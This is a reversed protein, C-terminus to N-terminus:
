RSRVPCGHRSSAGSSCIFAVAQDRAAPTRMLQPLVGRYDGLRASPEYHVPLSGMRLSLIRRRAGIAFERSVLRASLRQALRPLSWWLPTGGKRSASFVRSTLFSPMSSCKVDSRYRFPSCDLGPRKSGPAFVGPRSMRRPVLRVSRRRELLPQCRFPSLPPSPRNGQIPQVLRWTV